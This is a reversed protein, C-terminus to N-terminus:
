GTPSMFTQALNQAVENQLHHSIEGSLLFSQGWPPAPSITDDFDKPSMRQPGQISTGFKLAIWKIRSINWEQATTGLAM